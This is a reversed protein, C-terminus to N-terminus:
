AAFRASRANYNQLVEASSLSRNYVMAIAVNGPFPQATGNRAGIQFNASNSLSGAFSTADQNVLAPVVGNIYLLMGARTKTGDYTMVVNYWTGNNYTGTTLKRLVTTSGDVLACGIKGIDPNTATSTNFGLQYGTYPSSIINKGMITLPQNNTTNTTRIWSSLTFGTSGDYGLINGLNAYDNSGDFVISGSGVTSYTPGNVLTANTASPSLDTWTTGSGPYSTANGADLHLVLGSTVLSPINSYGYFESMADPISKGAAASLARLSNSTSGLETKIASISLAGSSPLAM